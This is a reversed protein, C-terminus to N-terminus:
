KKAKEVNAPTLPFNYDVGSNLWISFTRGSSDLIIPNTNEVDGVQFRIPPSIKTATTKEEKCRMWSPAITLRYNMVM